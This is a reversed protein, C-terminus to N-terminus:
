DRRGHGLEELIQSAITWRKSARELSEIIPQVTGISLGFYNELWIATLGIKELLLVAALPMRQVDLIDDMATIDRTISMVM